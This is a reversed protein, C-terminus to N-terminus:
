LRTPLGVAVASGNALFASTPKGALVQALEPGYLWTLDGTLIADRVQWIHWRPHTVRYEVTSGDRQKTYGWYHETIFEEESGPAAIARDGTPVLRLSQWQGSGSWAYEVFDPAGTPGVGGFAHRMPLSRYPENYLYRAVAAILYRPVLEHIFTVARRTEGPLERRVYIRLNVEEFTRHAPIPVGRLRTNAFLFGVLSIFVRGDYSDLETGAPVFPQLVSASVEFNLMALNRWEATLFPAM